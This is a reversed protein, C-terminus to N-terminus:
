GPPMGRVARYAVVQPTHPLRIEGPSSIVSV